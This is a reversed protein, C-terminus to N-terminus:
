GALLLLNAFTLGNWLGHMLVSPGLRGSQLRLWGLGLGLVFLAPLEGLSLHAIGFVLASIVVGWLGGYRQGLVPLLVGRFLTEEFLPALVMATISFLLLAWPNTTTLVLELLPNSGSAKSVLQDFLWGVLTVLPLVKLVQTLAQRLASALPRWRWQLWGGEPKPAKGRLQAWLILLPLSMLGLYMGLVAVAQQLAPDAKLFGLSNQLVPALLLPTLLEGCVVFGGAVLLTVDVLDLPPGVLEALPPAKQRWRLWLERLLLGSGLLLLLVPAASLGLLRLLANQHLAAQRQGNAACPGTASAPADLQNLRDCVLQQQLPSLIWGAQLHDGQSPGVPSTGVPNTGSSVALSAILPRQEPRVQGMLDDFLQSAKASDGAQQVLLALELVQGPPAPGESQDIQHELEERLSTAPAVGGLLGKLPAPLAPAALVSLELQRLALANGVSPRQLSDVLGNLWLLASLVLSL